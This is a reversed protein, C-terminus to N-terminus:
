LGDDNPRSALRGHMPHAANNGAALQFPPLVRPQGPLAAVLALCDAVYDNLAALDVGQHAPGFPALLTQATTLLFMPGDDLGLRVQNLGACVRILGKHFDDREVFWRQEIRLLAAIYEGANFLTIWDDNM